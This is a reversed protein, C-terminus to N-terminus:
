GAGGLPSDFRRVTAEARNFFEEIYQIIMPCIIM